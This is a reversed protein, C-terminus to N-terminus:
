HSLSPPRNDQPRELKADQFVRLLVRCNKAQGAAGLIGSADADTVADTVNRSYVELEKVVEEYLRPDCLFMRRAAHRLPETTASM